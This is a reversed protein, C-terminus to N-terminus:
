FTKQLTFIDTSITNDDHDFQATVELENNITTDFTTDNIFGFNKGSLTNSAHQTYQFIGTSALRAVGATGIQHISFDVTLNWREADARTLTIIGTDALLIGDAKVRIRLSDGNHFVCTGSFNARYADGQRFGNAPVSLTGIGDGILTEESLTNSVGDFSGTQNFLGYSTNVLSGTQTTQVFSSTSFEQTINDGNGVLFHGESLSSTFVGSIDIIGNITQDGIFENGGSILAYNSLDQENTGADISASLSSSFETFGTTDGIIIQSSGSVVGSRIGYYLSGYSIKKTESENVIALSDSLQPETHLTLDTIKKNAM